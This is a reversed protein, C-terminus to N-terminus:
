KRRMLIASAAATILTGTILYGFITISVLGTTYQKKAKAVLADIEDPTKNGQRVLDERYFRAAKEAEEPHLMSFITTFAVLILVVIIFCRFGQGFLSSFKGDYASSRSFTYLTWIIGAAYIIHVLFKLGSSAPIDLTYLIVMVIAMLIGTIAGKITPSTLLM